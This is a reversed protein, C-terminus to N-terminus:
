KGEHEFLSVFIMHELRRSWCFYSQRLQFGEM